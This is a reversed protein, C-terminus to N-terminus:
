PHFIHRSKISGIQSDTVEVQSQLIRAGWIGPLMEDGTAEGLFGTASLNGSGHFGGGAESVQRDPHHGYVLFSGLM